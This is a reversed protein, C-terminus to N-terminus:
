IHRKRNKKNRFLEDYEKQQNIFGKIEGNFDKFMQETQTVVMNIAYQIENLYSAVREYNNDYIQSVGIVENIEHSIRDLRAERKDFFGNNSFMVFYYINAGTHDGYEHKLDAEAKKEFATVMDNVHKNLFAILETKTMGVYAENKLLNNLYKIDTNLKARLLIQFVKTKEPEGDFKLSDIKRLYFEKRYFVPAAYLSLRSTRGMRKALSTFISRRLKDNNLIKYAIFGGSLVILIAGQLSVPLKEVFRIIFDIFKEM